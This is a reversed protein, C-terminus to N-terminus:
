KASRTSAAHRPSFNTGFFAPAPHIEQISYLGDDFLRAALKHADATASVIEVLAGNRLLAFKGKNCSHIKMEQFADYNTHIQKDIQERTPM